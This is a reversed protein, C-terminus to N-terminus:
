SKGFLKTNNLQGFYINLSQDGRNQDSASSKCSASSQSQVALQLLIHPPGQRCNHAQKQSGIQLQQLQVFLCAKYQEGSCTFTQQLDKFARKMINDM